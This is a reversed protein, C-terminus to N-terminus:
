KGIRRALRRLETAVAAESPPTGAYHEIYTRVVASVTTGERGARRKAREWTEDSIRIFRGKTEAM